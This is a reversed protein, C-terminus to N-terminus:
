VSERPTTTQDKSTDVTGNSEEETVCEYHEPVKKFKLKLHKAIADLRQSIDMTNYSMKIGGTLYNFFEPIKHLRGLLVKEKDRATGLLKPYDLKYALYSTGLVLPILILFPFLWLVFVCLVLMCGGMLIPIIIEHLFCDLDMSDKRTPLM